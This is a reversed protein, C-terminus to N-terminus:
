EVTKIQRVGEAQLTGAPMNRWRLRIRSHRNGSTVWAAGRNRIWPELVIPATSAGASTCPSSAACPALSMEITAVWIGLSIWTLAWSPLPWGTRISMAAWPELVPKAARLAPWASRAAAERGILALSSTASVGSPSKFLAM